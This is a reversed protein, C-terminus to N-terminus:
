LEVPRGTRASEVIAMSLDHSKLADAYPSRIESADGTRIAQIFAADEARYPDIAPRTQTTERERRVTLLDPSFQFLAVPTVAELGVRLSAPGVCSNVITVTMGNEMRLIAAGADPVDADAHLEGIARTSVSASVWRAEGFLLRVLDMVHITQEVFQGGSEERHRWWAPPPLTSMWCGNALVPTTARLMAKLAATTDLYRLHFGVSTVLGANAVAEAIRRPTQPDLGLPKEVLFPVGRRALELETEGHANPTVVIVAADPEEADLAHELETYASVSTGTRDALAAAAASAHDATRSCFATVTVDEMEALIAAHKQAYTGSGIILIKM